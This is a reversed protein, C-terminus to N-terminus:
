AISSAPRAALGTEVVRPSSGGAPGDGLRAAVDNLQRGRATASCAGTASREAAAGTARPYPLRAAGAARRRGVQPEEVAAWRQSSREGSRQRNGGVCTGAADPRGSPSGRARLVSAALVHRYQM